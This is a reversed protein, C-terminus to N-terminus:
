LTNSWAAIPTVSAISYAGTPTAYKSDQDDLQEQAEAMIEARIQTISLRTDSYISWRGTATRGRGTRYIVEALYRFQAPVKFTQSLM